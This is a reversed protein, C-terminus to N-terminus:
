CKKPRSRLPLRQWIPLKAQSIGFFLYFPRRFLCKMNPEISTNAVDFVNEKHAEFFRNALRLLVSLNTYSQGVLQICKMTTEGRQEIHGDSFLFFRPDYWTSRTKHAQSSTFPSTGPALNLKIYGHCGFVRPCLLVAWRKARPYTQIRWPSSLLLTCGNSDSCYALLAVFSWPDSYLSYM